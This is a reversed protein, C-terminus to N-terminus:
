NIQTSHFVLELLKSKQIMKNNNNNETTNNLSNTQANAIHIKDLDNDVEIIKESISILKNDIDVM